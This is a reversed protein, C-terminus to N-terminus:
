PQGGATAAETPVALSSLYAALAELEEETGVFPPMFPYSLESMDMVEGPELAAYSEGQDWLAYLNADIFDPDVLPRIAQYGDLTHCTACQARFVSNRGQFPM